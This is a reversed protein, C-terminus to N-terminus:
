DLVGLLQLAVAIVAAQRDGIDLGLVHRFRYGNRALIKEEGIGGGAGRGTPADETQDFRGPGIAVM